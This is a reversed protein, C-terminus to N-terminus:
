SIAVIQEAEILEDYHRDITAAIPGGEILVGLEMNRDFAAGTLNASSVLISEGDKIVCKVHMIAGDPGRNAAPWRYVPVAKPLNGFAVAADWVRGGSDDSTELILRVDVDRELRAKDLEAVLDDIGHSAYTVLTLTNRARGILQMTVQRTPRLPLSRVTPGTWVVTTSGLKARVRAAVQAAADLVTLALDRDTGEFVKSVLQSARGAMHREIARLAQASDETGRLVEVIAALADDELHMAAAAARSALDAPDTM